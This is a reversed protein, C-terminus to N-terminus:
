PVPRSGGATRPGATPTTYWGIRLEHTLRAVFCLTKLGTQLSQLDLVPAGALFLGKPAAEVLAPFHGLTYASGFASYTGDPTFVDM